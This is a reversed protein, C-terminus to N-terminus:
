RQVVLVNTDMFISVGNGRLNSIHSPGRGNKWVLFIVQNLFYILQSYRYRYWLLGCMEVFPLLIFGVM